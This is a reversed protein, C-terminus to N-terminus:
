QDFAVILRVYYLWTNDVHYSTIVTTATYIIIIIIIVNQRPILSDLKRGHLHSREGETLKAKFGHYIWVIIFNYHKHFCIWTKEGRKLAERVWESQSVRKWGKKKELAYYYWIMHWSIRIRSIILIKTCTLPFITCIVCM